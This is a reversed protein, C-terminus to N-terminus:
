HGCVTGFGKPPRRPVFSSSVDTRYNSWVLEEPIFTTGASFLRVLVTGSTLDRVEDVVISVSNLSQNGAVCDLIAAPARPDLSMTFKSLEIAAFVMTIGLAAALQIDYIPWEPFDPQAPFDSHNTFLLVSRGPQTENGEVWRLIGGLDTDRFAFSVDKPIASAGDPLAIWQHTTM